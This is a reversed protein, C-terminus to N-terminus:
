FGTGPHPDGDVGGWYHEGRPVRHEDGQQAGAKVRSSAATQTQATVARAAECRDGTDAVDSRTLRRRPVPEDDLSIVRATLARRQNAAAVPIGVGRSGFCGHSSVDVAVDDDDAPQSQPVEKGKNETM